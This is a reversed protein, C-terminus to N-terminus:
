RAAIWVMTGNSVSVYPSSTEIVQANTRARMSVEDLTFGGCGALAVMMKVLTCSGATGIAFAYDGGEGAAGDLEIM